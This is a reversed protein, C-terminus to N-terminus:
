LKRGRVDASFPKPNACESPRSMLSTSTSVLESLSKQHFRSPVRVGHSGSYGHVRQPDDRTAEYGEIARGSPNSQGDAVRLLSLWVMVQVFVQEVRLMFIISNRTRPIGAFYQEVMRGTQLEGSRRDGHLLAVASRTQLAQATEYHRAYGLSARGFRVVRADVNSPAIGDCSRRWVAGAM